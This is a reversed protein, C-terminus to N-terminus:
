VAYPDEWLAKNRRRQLQGLYLGALPKAAFNLPGADLEVQDTCVTGNIGLPEVHTLHSWRKLRPSRGELILTRNTDDQRPAETETLVGADRDGALQRWVRDVPQTYVASRTVIVTKGLAKKLQKVMMDPRLSLLDEETKLKKMTLSSLPSVQEELAKWAKKAAKDRSGKWCIIKEAAPPAAAPAYAGELILTRVRVTGRSLLSLLLGAGSRLGYAGWVRGAHDRVLLKELADLRAATDEGAAFAPLMLYYSKELGGLAAFVAEHDAEGEPLLLVVPNGPKGRTHLNM